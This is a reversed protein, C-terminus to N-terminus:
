LTLLPFLIQFEVNHKEPKQKKRGIGFFMKTTSLLLCEFQISILLLSLAFYLLISLLSFIASPFSFASFIILLGKLEHSIEIAILLM